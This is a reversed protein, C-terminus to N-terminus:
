ITFEKGNFLIKPRSPYKVSVPLVAYVTNKPQKLEIKNLRNYNANTRESIVTKYHAAVNNIEVMPLGTKRAEKIAGIIDSLSECKDFIDTLVKKYRAM